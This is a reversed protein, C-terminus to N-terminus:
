IPHRGSQGAAEAPDSAAACGAASRFDTSLDATESDINSATV